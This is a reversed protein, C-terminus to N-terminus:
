ESASSLFGFLRLLRPRCLQIRDKCQPTLSNVYSLDFLVFICRISFKFLLGPVRAADGM